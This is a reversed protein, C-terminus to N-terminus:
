SQSPKVSQLLGEVHSDTACAGDTGKADSVTKLILRHELSIWTSSVEEVRIAGLSGQGSATSDSRIRVADQVSGDGMTVQEKLVEVTSQSTVVVKGDKSTMTFSWTQGAAPRPPLVLAPPNPEFDISSSGLPGAETQRLYALHIGDPRYELVSTVISGNGQEDRLDLVSQQRNGEAPDVTLPAAEPPSDEREICGSITTKGSMNMSYRGSATPKLANPDLPAGKMDIPSPSAFPDKGATPSAGPSPTKAEEEPTKQPPSPSANNDKGDGNSSCAALLAFALAFVALKPSRHSSM